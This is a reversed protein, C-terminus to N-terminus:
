IEDYETSWDESARQTACKQEWERNSIWKRCRVGEPWFNSSEIIHDFELPVNIKASLRSQNYKPQFLMLHTIKVGKSEIYNAIGSRSSERGIGSLYYRATKRYTVGVFVDEKRTTTKSNQKDNLTIVCSMGDYKVSRSDSAERSGGVTVNSNVTKQKDSHSVRPRTTDHGNLRSPTFGNHPSDSVHIPPGNSTRSPSKKNQPSHTPVKSHTPNLDSPELGERLKKVKEAVVKEISLTTSSQPWDNAQSPVKEIESSSSNVPSNNSITSAYSKCPSISSLQKQFNISVKSLRKLEDNTKSKYSQCDQHDTEMRKFIDSSLKQFSDYKTFKATSEAHLREHDSQLQEFQSQLSQLDSTLSNITKDKSNVMSELNSIREILSQITTRLEIANVKNIEAVIPTNKNKGFIDNICSKEGQLFMYLIFCDKAYKTISSGVSTTKRTLLKGSPCDPQSKARSCLANRYWCILNEDNSCIDLLKSIYIEKPLNQLQTDLTHVDIADITNPCEHEDLIQSNQSVSNCLMSSHSEYPTSVTQSTQSTFLATFEDNDMSIDCNLLDTLLGRKSADQTDTEHDTSDKSFNPVPKKSQSSVDRGSSSAAM